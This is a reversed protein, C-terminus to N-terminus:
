LQALLSEPPTQTTSRKLFRQVSRASIAAVIGRKVAVDALDRASWHSIPVGSDQPSECALALLQTVQTATFKVPAGARPQDRLIEEIAFRLDRDSDGSVEIATLRPVEALWRSRWQQVTERHVEIQQATQQNNKGSDMCLIM